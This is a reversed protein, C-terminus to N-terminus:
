RLFTILSKLSHLGPLPRRPATYMKTSGSRYYYRGRLSLAVSYAPTIIEIYQKGDEQHLNVEILIGLQDKIKHPIIEMLSRYDPVHVVRGQDDKGVFITGGHANAFGCIWKLYDDHWSQKYEINQQEPM